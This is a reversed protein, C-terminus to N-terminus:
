AFISFERKIDEKQQQKLQELMAKAIRYQLSNNIASLEYQTDMASFTELSGFSPNSGVSSLLGMRANNASMMSYASNNALSTYYGISMLSVLSM